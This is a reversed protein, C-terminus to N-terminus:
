NKEDLDLTISYYPLGLWMATPSKKKLLPPDDAWDRHILRGIDDRVAQVSRLCVKAIVEYQWRHPVFHFAVHVLLSIPQARHAITM